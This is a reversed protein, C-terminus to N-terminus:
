IDTEQYEPLRYTLAVPNWAVLFQRKTATASRSYSMAKSHNDDEHCDSQQANGWRVFALDAEM